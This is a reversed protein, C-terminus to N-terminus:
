MSREPSPRHKFRFGIEPSRILLNFIVQTQGPVDSPPALHCLRAQQSGFPCCVAILSFIEVDM